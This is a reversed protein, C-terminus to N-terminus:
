ALDADVLVLLLDVPGQAGALLPIPQQGDPPISPRENTGRPGPPSLGVLLDRRTTRSQADLQPLLRRHERKKPVATRESQQNKHKKGGALRHKHFFLLGSSQLIPGILVAIRYGGPGKGPSLRTT